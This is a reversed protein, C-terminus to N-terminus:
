TYLQASWKEGVRSKSMSQYTWGKRHETGLLFGGRAKGSDKVPDPGRFKHYLKGTSRISFCSNGVWSYVWGDRVEPKSALQECNETRVATDSDAYATPALALLVGGGALTAVLLKGASAKLGSM